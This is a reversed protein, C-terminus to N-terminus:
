CRSGRSSPGKAIGLLGGALRGPLGPRHRGLAGGISLLNMLAAQLPIVLSRFIVFLLLASLVVVIASSSRCSRPCCTSFDISGATFGGVQSREGFASAVAAPRPRAAPQRPQDDGAGAAGLGSLGGDGGGQGVALDRPPTVAVIDPTKALAPPAGAAPDTPRADADRHRDAAARQLRAGFGASLLNFARYTNTNSPDNGADTSDLRLGFVPLLFLVM